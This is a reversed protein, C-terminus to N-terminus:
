RDAFCCKRKLQLFDLLAFLSWCSLWNTLILQKQKMVKFLLFPSAHIKELVHCEIDKTLQGICIEISSDALSIKALKKSKAEGVCPQISSCSRNNPEKEKAFWRNRFINRCEAMEASSSHCFCEIVVPLRSRWTKSLTKSAKFFLGLNAKIVLTNQKFIFSWFAQDGLMAAWLELVCTNHYLKVM